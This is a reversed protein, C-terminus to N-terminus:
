GNAEERSRLYEEIVRLTRQSPSAGPKRLAHVTPNSLGTARCVARINMDALRKRIQEITM